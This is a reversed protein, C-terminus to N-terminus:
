KNVSLAVAFNGVRFFQDPPVQGQARAMPREFAIKRLQDLSQPPGFSM